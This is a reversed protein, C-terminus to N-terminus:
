PYGAQKQEESNSRVCGAPLNFCFFCKAVGTKKEKKRGEHGYTAAWFFWGYSVTLEKPLSSVLCMRVMLWFWYTPFFFFVCVCVCVCVSGSFWLCSPQSEVRLISPAQFLCYFISFM